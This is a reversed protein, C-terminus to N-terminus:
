FLFSWAIHQSFVAKNGRLIDKQAHRANQLELQTLRGMQFQSVLFTDLDLSFQAHRPQVEPPAISAPEKYAFSRIIERNFPFLGTHRFGDIMRDHLHNKATNWFSLFHRPFSNRDVQLACYFFMAIKADCGTTM